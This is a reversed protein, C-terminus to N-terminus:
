CSAATIRALDCYLLYQCCILCKELAAAFVPVADVVLVFRVTLLCDCCVFLCFLMFFMKFDSLDKTTWLWFLVHFYQKIIM